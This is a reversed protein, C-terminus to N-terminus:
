VEDVEWVPCEIEFVWGGDVGFTWFWVFVEAGGPLFDCPFVRSWFCVWIKVLVDFDDPVMARFAHFASGCFYLWEDAFIGFDVFPADADCEDSGVAREDCVVSFNDERGAVFEFIVFSWRM